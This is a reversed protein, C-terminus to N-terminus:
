PVPVLRYSVFAFSRSDPSWSPVNITGQGGFLRALVRPEGGGAPMIRLMVDQNAPHGEVDPEYSLFAIWQGDPSPHPFWDNYADSTVQEEDSGDARMRYIQMTGTRVSNFYIYAGDPSYDPGDDLGPATTLRTEEGGEVPITYIDFEDERQGVYALTGGDPSWGHWYSPALPTVLRPTGGEIPLVYIRSQGDRSQDSVVLQTGDPSIGHDNNVQTAFGTDLLEPEGGEVPITYIRGNSNYLLYSGDPSWNPAEIHDAFHHVVRRNGSDIDIIELSSELVTDSGAVPGTMLDVNSFVAEELASSDHACVALGVYFSDTFPLRLSGGGTWEAGEGDAVSMYVYEGRKDIRVRRPAQVPARIERTAGGAESRFQLAALGNGHVVVDAYRADPELSQRVIVGAKRHEHGGDGIWEVDAMLAADGSVRTWVFHFADTEGWMNEGGGTVRYTGPDQHEVSGARGVAGIDGHGDFVGPAGDQRAAPEPRAAPGARAPSGGSSTAEEEPTPGEVVNLLLRPAHRGDDYQGDYFAAAISGLPRVALGLTRGDILRQLVPRSITFHTTAGGGAAVTDDIIMQPNLVADLPAGRLFSEATVTAQDWSPDGGLIETVRVLGFDPTPEGPRQVSHTTLELLGPGAVTTGALRDLDFRLLAYQTGNVGLVRKRTTGAGVSWEELNVAPNALDITADQAASVSEDFTVPDPVPPHYRVAAGRDPPADDVDVVDVRFREIDVRHEGSGWDMLALQAYVTDGPAADFGRTTMSITHWGTTDPIDFELLHSHFDTTRQTNLHLNVRRPAASARVRAEVRLEHDPRTLRDLDLAPSVARKILAWWTNRRDRTADVRISAHGPTAQRFTMTVDGAGTFYSWGALGSPDTAVSDAEFADLFQANAGTAPAVPILGAIVALLLSSHSM